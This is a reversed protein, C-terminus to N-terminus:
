AVAERRSTWIAGALAALFLGMCLTGWLPLSTQVFNAIQQRGVVVPMFPDIRMPAHPDLQHGYTYLRYAFTGLSFLGFYTFLVALDVLHGVRDMVIARLTLLVFVGIAFPLWKMEAFDAEVIPKMGIYHNLTNIEHLDQGGNGGAIRYAYMDLRLGEAYQPAVLEIRWLPLLSGVVLALIGAVLLLRATGSLPRDLLRHVARFRANM